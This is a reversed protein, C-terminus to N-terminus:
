EPNTHKLKLMNDLKSIFEKEFPKILRRRLTWHFWNVEGHGESGGNANEDWAYCIFLDSLNHSTNWYTTDGGYRFTYRYTMDPQKIEMTVYTHEDNYYDKLTDVQINPSSALVKQVNSDLTYKSVSYQYAKISGHTGGGICSILLSSLSFIFITKLRLKKDM